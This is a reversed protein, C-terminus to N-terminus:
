VHTYNHARCLRLAELIAITEAETNTAENIERGLAYIMDGADNRVCYGIASRGPYGRSAGDTNVKM